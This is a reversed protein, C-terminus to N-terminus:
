LLPQFPSGECELLGRFNHKFFLTSFYEIYNCLEWSRTIHLIYKEKVLYAQKIIIALAKSHIAKIKDRPFIIVKKAQFNNFPFEKDYRCYMLLSKSM